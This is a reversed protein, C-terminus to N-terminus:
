GFRSEWDRFVAVPKRRYRDVRAPGLLVVKSM